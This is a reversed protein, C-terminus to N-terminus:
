TPPEEAAADQEGHAACTGSGGIETAWAERIRMLVFWATKQSVGIDRHLKMRSVSKLSTLCLHVAIAWKRLPVNSHAIATGTRVSSYGRCGSFWYPMPRRGSMEHTRCSGCKGCCRESQWLTQELWREATQKDPFMALLQILDLGERDSRGPRESEDDDHTQHPLNPRM